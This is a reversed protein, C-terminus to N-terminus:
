SPRSAGSCQGMTARAGPAARRRLPAALIMATLITATTGGRRRRSASWGCSCFARRPFRLAHAM